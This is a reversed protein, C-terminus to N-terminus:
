LEKPDPVSLTKPDPVARAGEEGRSGQFITCEPADNIKVVNRKTTPTIPIILTGPPPSTVGQCGSAVVIVTALLVAILIWTGDSRGRKARTAPNLKASM